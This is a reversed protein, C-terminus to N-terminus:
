LISPSRLARDAQACGAHREAAVRDEPGRAHKVGFLSASREYVETSRWLMSGCLERWVIQDFRDPECRPRSGDM